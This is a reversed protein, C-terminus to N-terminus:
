RGRGHRQRRQSMRPNPGPQTGAAAEACVGGTIMLLQRVLEHVSTWPNRDVLKPHDQLKRQHLREANRLAAERHPWIKDFNFGKDDYDYPLARAAARAGENSLYATHMKHHLILWLEFCPHSVECDIGTRRAKEVATELSQHRQAFPGAAEVDFVAWVYDYDAKLGEAHEVVTLPDAGLGVFKIRATTLRYEKRIGNFYIDETKV